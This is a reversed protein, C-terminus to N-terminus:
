DCSPLSINQKYCSSPGGFFSTLFVPHIVHTLITLVCVSEFAVFHIQFFHKITPPIIESFPVVAVIIQLFPWQRYKKSPCIPATSLSETCIFLKMRKDEGYTLTCGLGM